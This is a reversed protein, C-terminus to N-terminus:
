ELSDVDYTIWKYIPISASPVLTGNINQLTISVTSSESEPERKIIGQSYCNDCTIKYSLSTKETVFSLKSIQTIQFELLVPYTSNKKDVTFNKKSINIALNLTKTEGPKLSDFVMHPNADDVGLRYFYIKGTEKMTANNRITVYIRGNKEDITHNVILEAHEMDYIAMNIQQKSYNIGENTLEISKQSLNLSVQSITLSERSINLSDLTYGLAIISIVLALLNVLPHKLLNMLIALICHNKNSSIEIERSVPDGYKSTYDLKKM